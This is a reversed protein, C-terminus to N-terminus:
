NYDGQLVTEEDTNQTMAMRKQQRRARANAAADEYEPEYEPVYEPVYEQVPPPLPHEMALEHEQVAEYERKLDRDFESNGDNVGTGEAVAQNELTMKEFDNLNDFEPDSTPAIFVNDNSSVPSPVPSPISSVPSPVPSPPLVPLPLPKPTGLEPNPFERPPNSRLGSRRISDISQTLKNNSIRLEDITAHLNEKQKVNHQIIAKYKNETIKMRHNEHTSKILEAKIQEILISQNDTKGNTISGTMFRNFLITRIEIMITLMIDQFYKVNDIKNAHDDCIKRLNNIDFIKMGIRKIAQIFIFVFIQDKDTHSLQAFYDSPIYEKVISDVISAHNTNSTNIWAGYWQKLDNLFSTLQDQQDINMLFGKIVDKYADTVSSYSQQEHKMKATTYMNNYYLSIIYSGVVEMVDLTLKKYENTKYM